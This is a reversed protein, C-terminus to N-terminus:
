DFNIAIGLFVQSQSERQPPIRGHGMTLYMFSIWKGIKSDSKFRYNLGGSYYVSEDLNAMDAAAPMEYGKYYRVGSHLGLGGWWHQHESDFWKGIKFTWDAEGSFRWYADEAAGLRAFDNSQLVEVRHYGVQANPLLSWWATDKTSGNLHVYGFSPGYAFNYNDFPQDTEFRATGTLRFDGYHKRKSVQPGQGGPVGIPTGIGGETSTRDQFPTVQGSEEWM